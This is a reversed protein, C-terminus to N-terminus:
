GPCTGRYESFLGLQVFRDPHEFGAEALAALITEPPVCQEISDWHYDWLQRVRPDRSVMEGLTPLLRGLYFRSLSRGLRSRPSTIELVLLRGGPKLVRRFESFCEPLTRVHRLAYGMVLFDVSNDELPLDEATGPRALIGRIRRARERMGASPDVSVVLAPDGVIQAARESIVGTGCAVDAVQMGAELGARRLAFGRYLNGSGFSLIHNLWDYHDATSDFLDQLLQERDGPDEYHGHLVPHPAVPEAPSDHLTPDPM